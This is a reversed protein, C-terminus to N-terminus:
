SEFWLIRDGSGLARDMLGHRGAMGLYCQYLPLFTVLTQQVCGLRPLRRLALTEEETLEAPHKWELEEITDADM